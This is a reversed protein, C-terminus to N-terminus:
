KEQWGAILGAAWEADAPSLQPEPPVSYDISDFPGDNYVRELVAQLDLTAPADTERLPVHIAPLQQRISIPYALLKFSNADLTVALYNSREEKKLDSWTVILHSRSGRLLDIEVWSTGGDEISKLKAVYDRNLQGPLKNWPSLVEIVTVVRDNDRTDVVEINRLVVPGRHFRIQIPEMVGVAGASRAAAAAEFRGSDVVAIDPRFGRMREGAITEIRVEEEPRAELGAPLAPKLLAAIASVMLVHVNSWRSELYPNMGPFPSKNMAVIM